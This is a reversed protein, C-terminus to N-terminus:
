GGIGGRDGRRFSDGSDTSLLVGEEESYFRFKGGEEVAPNVCERKTLRQAIKRLWVADNMRPDVDVHTVSTISLQARRGLKVAPSTLLLVTQSARWPAVSAGISGWLVLSAEATDDFIGVDVKESSRNNKNIVINLTLIHVDKITHQTQIL